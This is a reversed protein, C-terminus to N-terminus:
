IAISDVASPSDSILKESLSHLFFNVFSCYM